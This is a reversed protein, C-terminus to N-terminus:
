KFVPIITDNICCVTAVKKFGLNFLRMSARLSRTESRMPRSDYKAIFLAHVVASRLQTTFEYGASTYLNGLKDAMADLTPRDSILLSMECVAEFYEGWQDPDEEYRQRAAM